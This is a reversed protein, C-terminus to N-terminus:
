PSDVASIVHAGRGPRSLFSTLARGHRRQYEAALTRSIAAVRDARVLMVACGGFGGGTMRAGFVGGAEGLARALEVLTDLEACSVEFDHRLSEHSQYMLAGMTALEGASLADAAALTRANETVVHRARRYAVAGLADRAAEVSAPTAARLTPIGLRRAAQECDARRRAYEGDGLAHRVNTNCILVGVAPDVLPVPRARESQFDLLLPGSEDGLVSTMQDMLGCPVHAFDNEARRCLRAKDMRELATGTAAELLTATAVELAASSSLGGGLPVDSVALADLAPVTLARQQFGAVVGRVYNAWSPAGAAPPADLPIDVSSTLAASYFRLRPRAGNSAADPAAPAGAIVAYRDLTMPLAFGATYDTHEGILNVRGPAAVVWRPPRGFRTTFAQAAEQALARLGGPGAQGGAQGGDHM